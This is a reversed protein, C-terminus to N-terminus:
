VLPAPAPKPTRRATPRCPRNSHKAVGFPYHAGTLLCTLRAVPHTSDARRASDPQNWEIWGPGPAATTPRPVAGPGPPVPQHSRRRQAAAGARLGRAHRRPRPRDFARRGLFGGRHTRHSGQEPLRAPGSRRHGDARTLPRSRARVDPRLRLVDAHGPVRIDALHVRTGDDLRLSCWCWGFAWWDRVGWSHDRQGQGDM